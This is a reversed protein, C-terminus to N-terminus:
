LPGFMRELRKNNCTLVTKKCRMALHRAIEMTSTEQDCRLEAKVLRLRDINNLMGQVVNEDQAGKRVFNECFREHETQEQQTPEHRQTSQKAAKNDPQDLNDEHEETELTRKTEHEKAVQSLARELKKSNIVPQM